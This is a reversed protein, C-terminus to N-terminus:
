MKMIHFGNNESNIIKKYNKNNLQIWTNFKEISKMVSEKKKFTIFVFKLPM